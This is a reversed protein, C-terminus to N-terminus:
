IEDVYLERRYETFSGVIVNQRCYPCSQKEEFWRNLCEMHFAHGCHLMYLFEKETFKKVCIVCT